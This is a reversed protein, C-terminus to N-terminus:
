KIEEGDYAKFYRAERRGRILIRWVPTQSDSLVTEDDRTGHSAYGKFGLDISEIIADEERPFAKLLVLHAPLIDMDGSVKGLGEIDRYSYRISSIGGSTLEFLISNDYVLFEKIKQTFLVELKDEFSNYRDVVFGDVTIGMESCFSRLYAIVADKDRVDVASSPNSDRYTIVCGSLEATKTGASFKTGGEGSVGSSEDDLLRAIIKAVDFGSNKFELMPTRKTYTPINVGEAISVGRSELIKRTNELAERSVGGDFLFSGLRVFLFINLVVFVGILISKARSWEM